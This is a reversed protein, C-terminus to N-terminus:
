SSLRGGHNPDITKAAWLVGATFSDDEPRPTTERRLGRALYTAYDDIANGMAVESVDPRRMLVLADFPTVDLERPCCSRDSLHVGHDAFASVIAPDDLFAELSEDETDWDGDQLNGIMQGLVNRKTTDDVGADQLAKAVPDFISNASSWGM